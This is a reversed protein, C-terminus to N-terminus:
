GQRQISVKNIVLLVDSASIFSDGNVDMYFRPANPTTPPVPQSDNVHLFKLITVADLTNVVGDNNVDAPEAPNQAASPSLPPPTLLLTSRSQDPAVADVLIGGKGNIEIVDIVVYGDPADYPIDQYGYSDHYLFHRSSVAIGLQSNICACHILAENNDNLSTSWCSSVGDSCFDPPSGLENPLWRKATADLHWMIPRRVSDHDEARVSGLVTNRENIHTALGLSGLPIPLPEIGRDSTWVFPKSNHGLVGPPNDQELLGSAGVIVMKDNIDTPYTEQGPGFALTALDVVIGAEWLFGRGWQTVGKSSTGVVQGRKNVKSLTTQKLSPYAHSPDISMFANGAYLFHGITPLEGSRGSWPEIGGSLAVRANSSISLTGVYALPANVSTIKGNSLINITCGAGEQTVGVVQGSGNMDIPRNFQKYPLSTVSYSEPTRSALIDLSNDAPKKESVLRYFRGERTLTYITDRTDFTGTAARRNVALTFAGANLGKSDKLDGLFTKGSLRSTTQSGALM